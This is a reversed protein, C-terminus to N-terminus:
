VETNYTSRNWWNPKTYRIVGNNVDLYKGKRDYAGTATTTATAIQGQGGQTEFAVGNHQNFRFSKPAAAALQQSSFIHSRPEQVSIKISPAPVTVSIDQMTDLALNPAIYRTVPVATIPQRAECVTGRVLNSLPASFIRFNVDTYDLEAILFVPMRDSM